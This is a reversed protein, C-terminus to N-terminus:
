MWVWYIVSVAIVMVVMSTPLGVKFYDRFRYGGATMVMLNTQYGIPTMFSAAASVAILLAFAKPDGGVQAATALAVPLMLVAAAKHTILETLLNTVIYLLVLVAVMGLGVTASLIGQALWASLGTKVVAQGIGLAGAIIILVQLDVAKRAQTGNMCRTLVMLLATVFVATVLPVLGLAIVAIMLLLLGLALWAKQMQPPKSLSRKYPAVLYFEDRSANWRKDFGNTAEVLLLDGAKISIRGLSGDLRENRRHIALVVGGFVERFQAERLSKGVLSSTDAVVAEYLPQTIM